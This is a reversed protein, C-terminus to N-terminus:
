EIEVVTNNECMLIKDGILLQPIKNNVTALLVTIEHNQAYQYLFGLIEQAAQADLHQVPADILLISPNNLLARAILM